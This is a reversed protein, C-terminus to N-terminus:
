FLHFLSAMSQMISHYFTRQVTLLEVIVALNTSDINCHQTIVMALTVGHATKLSRSGELRFRSM